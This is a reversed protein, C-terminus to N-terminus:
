LAINLEIDSFEYLRFKSKKPRVIVICVYVGKKKTCTFDLIKRNTHILNIVDAPKDYIYVKEKDYGNNDTFLVFYIHKYVRTINLMYIRNDDLHIDDYGESKETNKLLYINEKDSVYALINYLGTLRYKNTTKYYLDLLYTKGPKLKKIKRLINLITNNESIFENIKKNKYIIKILM